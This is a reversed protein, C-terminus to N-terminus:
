GSVVPCSRIRNFVAPLFHYIHPTPRWQVAPCLSAMVTNSCPALTGEGDGDGNGRGVGDTGRGVLEVFAGGGAGDAPVFAATEPKTIANVTRTPINHDLNSFKTCIKEVGM